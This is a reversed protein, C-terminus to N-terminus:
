GCKQAEVAYWTLGRRGNAQRVAEGTRVLGLALLEPLRRAVMYRDMGAENALQKSTRHPYARVARLVDAQQCKAVDRVMAAAEKSTAPDTRRARPPERAFLPPTAQYDTM